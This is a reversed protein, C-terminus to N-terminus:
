IDDPLHVNTNFALLPGLGYLNLNDAFYALSRLYNEHWPRDLVQVHLQGMVGLVTM